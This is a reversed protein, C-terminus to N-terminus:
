GFAWLLIWSIGGCLMILFGVIMQSLAHYNESSDHYWGYGFLGAGILSVIINIILWM